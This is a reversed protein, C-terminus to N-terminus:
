IRVQLADQTFIINKPEIIVKKEGSEVVGADYAHIGYEKAIKMIKQVSAEPVFLAFGAGMNLNGYAEENDLIAKDAIFQLVPPVPPVHTIRYTLQKNNRMIKRWGHGTINAMYHIEINELFFAQLLKAYIITPDLLAEGYMRGDSLLTKYGQPLQEALKRALSLGNAHIGSSELLIIADGAHLNVGYIPEKGEPIMGFASGGLDIAQPYIIGPLTPTEGGVWAAGSLNCAHEWGKVLDEMREKNEFWKESGVAWYALISLPRAGVTVLDNVIMAVTDQAISDYYSKGTIPFLADAVLNKTGLGEQVFAFHSTGMVMISASEGSSEPFGAFKSDFLNKYTRKGALQALRKLPDMVDYNVGSSKYTLKSM